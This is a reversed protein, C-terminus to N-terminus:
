TQGSGCGTRQGLSPSDWGPASRLPALGESHVLERYRVEKADGIQQVRQPSVGSGLWNSLIADNRQGFTAQFDHRTISVGERSMTERWARWHYEESDVLTGDLDWFVAEIM